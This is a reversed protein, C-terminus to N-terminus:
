LVFKIDLEFSITLCPHSRLFNSLLLPFLLFDTLYSCLSDFAKLWLNLPYNFLVFLVQSLSLLSMLSLHPLPLLFYELLLVPLELIHSFAESSVFLFGKVGLSFLGLLFQM